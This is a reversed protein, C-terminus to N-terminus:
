EFEGIALTRISVELTLKDAEAPPVFEVIAFTRISVQTNAKDAFSQAHSSALRLLAFQFKVM